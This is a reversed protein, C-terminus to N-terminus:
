LLALLTQYQKPTFSIQQSHVELKLDLGEGWYPYGCFCVRKV